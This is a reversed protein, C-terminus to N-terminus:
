LGYTRKRNQFQKIIDLFKSENFDPWLTDIFFLEAYKLQLLLFNSLRRNGGTRILLDPDPLNKTFLNERIMKEDITINKSKNNNIIQNVCYELENWSGYNYALNLIIDKKKKKNQELKEFYSLIESSIDKREGIM